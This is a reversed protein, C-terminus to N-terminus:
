SPLENPDILVEIGKETVIRTRTYYQEVYIKAILIAAEITAGSGGDLWEGNYECEVSFLHRIM